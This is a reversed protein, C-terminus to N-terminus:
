VELYKAAAKDLFFDIHEHGLLEHAPLRSEPNSFVKHALDAKHEGTIVVIVRKSKMVQNLGITIGKELV